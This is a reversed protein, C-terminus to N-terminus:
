PNHYNNLMISFALPEGAATSVYGSLTNVYSLTGTKARAKGTVITQKFRNRLTGDVGAVPLAERFTAAYRHRDMFQLLRVIANPTVLAGRSLGSGEELLVEAPNIGAERLFKKLEALGAEESTQSGANVPRSRIGVQLLLLQAYLNQSPKMMQRVVEE